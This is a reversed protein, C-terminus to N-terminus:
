YSTWPNAFLWVGGAHFQLLRPDKDHPRRPAAEELNPWQTLCISLQFGWCAYGYSSGTLFKCSSPLCISKLLDTCKFNVIKFEGDQCTARRQNEERKEPSFWTNIRTHLGNKFLLMRYLFPVTELKNGRRLEGWLIVTCYSRYDKWETYTRCWSSNSCRIKTWNGPNHPSSQTSWIKKYSGSSSLWVWKVCILIWFLDTNTHM